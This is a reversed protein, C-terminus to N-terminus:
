RTNEEGSHSACTKVGEQIEIEAIKRFRRWWATKLNDPIADACEAMCEDAIADLAENYSRDAKEAVSNQDFM